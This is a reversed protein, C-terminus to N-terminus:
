KMLTMKEVATRSGSTLRYFYIGSPVSQGHNDLGNWSITYQGPSQVGDALTCVIRGLMDYVDLTTRDTRDLTYNIQTSPNFPNPYNGLLNFGYLAAPNEPQVNTDGEWVIGKGGESGEGELIENVQAETLVKDWIRVRDMYGLMKVPSTNDVNNPRAGLWLDDGDNTIIPDETTATGAPIGDAYITYTANNELTVVVLHWEGDFPDVGVEDGMFNVQVQAGSETHLINDWCKNSPNWWVDIHRSNDLEPWTDGQAWFVYGWNPDGEWQVWAALTYNPSNLFEQYPIAVYGVGEFAGGTFYICGTSDGATTIIGGNAFEVFGDGMLEGNNAASGQDKAVTGAKDDEFDYFSLPKPVTAGAFSVILLSLGIWLLSKKLM